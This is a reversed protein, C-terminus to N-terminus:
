LSVTVDQLAPYTRRFQSTFDSVAYAAPHSGTEHGLRCRHRVRTWSLAFLQRLQSLRYHRGATARGEGAAASLYSRLSRVTCIWFCVETIDPGDIDMSDTRDAELAREWESREEDKMLYIIGVDGPAGRGVLHVRVSVLATEALNKADQVPPLGRKARADAVFKDVGAGLAAEAGEGRLLWMKAHVEEARGARQTETEGARAGELGLVVDWDPVWACRVGRKDYAVRKGKPRRAWRAREDAGRAAWWAGCARTAPFDAPFHPAGAEAHQTARQALGAVRTGTFTLAHLLATGWGRPALLLWAHMGAGLTRQVLLLPVRADDARPELPTGPVLNQPGHSRSRSTLAVRGTWM